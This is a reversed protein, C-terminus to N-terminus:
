DRDRDGDSDRDHERAAPETRRQAGILESYDHPSSRLIVKRNCAPEAALARTEGHATVVIRLPDIGSSVLADRVADARAQSLLLNARRSGAHDTHGEIILLREPHRALWGSMTTALEEKDSEPLDTSGADFFIVSLLEEAHIADRPDVASTEDECTAPMDAVAAGRTAVLLVAILLYRM